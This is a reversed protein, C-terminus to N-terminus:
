YLPRILNLRWLVIDAVILIIPNRAGFFDAGGAAGVGGGGRVSCFASLSALPNSSSRRFFRKLRSLVRMPM